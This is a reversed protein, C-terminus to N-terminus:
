VELVAFQLKAKVPLCAEDHLEHLTLRNSLLVYRLV